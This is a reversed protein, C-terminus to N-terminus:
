AMKLAKEYTQTLYSNNLLKGVNILVFAKTKMAARLLMYENNSRHKKYFYLLNQYINVVAFSRNSSGQDEHLITVHPYFFVSYGKKKARYCFEMDEIYMFIKEDFGNLKEFIEKKVMMCGGKVWDVSAINKPNKDIGGIRQIGLLLLLANFPSYFRGVSVQDTGDRNMLKGGLVDINENENIYSLMKSIGEDKVETDNNLFLLLDGEASEAGFNCGRSFGMNEKSQIYKIKKINSKKISETLIISDKDESGNDIVIIEFKNQDLETKYQRQLSELCNITLDSKNYNLTIISLQM